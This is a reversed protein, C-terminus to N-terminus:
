TLISHLLSERKSSLLRLLQEEKIVDYRQYFKTPFYNPDSPNYSIKNKSNPDLKNMLFGVGLGIVM